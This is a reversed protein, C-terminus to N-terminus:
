HTVGPASSAGSSRGEAKLLAKFYAKIQEEYQPPYTDGLYRRLRDELNVRDNLLEAPLEPPVVYLQESASNAKRQETFDKRQLSRSAQLMRSYVRLQREVTESGVEGDAMSEEVKKMEEAIDELRGLVQRSQGFEEALQQLSKRISGQEGALRQLGERAQQSAKQSGPNNSPNNCQSQTKQNLQNQKNCLSELQSMQKNCNGGKNCQQQQNLSEMLRISAKNLKVMADKQARIAQRSNKDAFGNVAMEMNQIADNVLLQLEAAIFPSQKGLEAIRQKLGACSGVLDQESGALDRMILTSLNAQAAEKLLDEQNHSLYNSDDIADRLAKEIEDNQEGTMAMMQQQMADLMEALKSAAESGESSAQQKNQQQLAGSMSQMNQDADTKKVSELFKQGEPIQDMNAQQMLDRLEDTESKLQELGERTEDEQKSLSPLQEASSEETEQNTKKQEELLQEARRVMAEMKQEVQMRKLLSLTRDLRDLLEEQSLQFNKMAEQIEQRDMQALAEMLKKQAELLEPTAVEEFLKQIQQLKEIIERSMTAHDILKDISKDMQDAMEEVNQVLEENKEALTELEKQQQWDAKVADKNEAQMKRAMNRFREALERGERLLQETRNIRQSSEAETEAIIEDLSPLRAIFKRSKTVKPGSVVDNDAVEFHYVAYDGPYLNLQDMDWNFEVDGETKIRDSFHLVAVHEESPQGRSVVTYKLVLSSFGFDDFIRVKLPLVMEDSLNVDFGPRLVDISPYEDPIATIHYKIPDPNKEGLHDQLRIHYALTKDVKLSSTAQRNSVTMPVRSSDELVLHAQEVPLNTAIDMNVRTGVIASFSGNNEDIILPDLGTYEPYFLSLKIGNVRPRDVVDVKQVPTTVRGAEVYYDFSRSIQRLTIACTISDGNADSLHRGKKLDIDSEQWNGGVLRHYITAKDPLGDGFVAAGIEIDRYKVWESSGPFPVVRYGLPPAIESTPNSYVELSYSFIGPMIMVFLAAVLTSVVFLRGTKLLPYYSLARNFNVLRAHELAQERTADILELSFGPSKKLRAFEVAAVLRGKLDPYKEELSVAVNEVSGKFLRALAYRGFILLATLGTAVLLFVKLWVPLIMVQALLSLGVATVVVTTLTMLLGSLFLLIRQKFLIGRLKSLLMRDNKLEKM